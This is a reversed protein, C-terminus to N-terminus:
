RQFQVALVVSRSPIDASYTHLFSIPWGASNEPVDSRLADGRLSPMRNLWWSPASCRSWSNATGSAFSHPPRTSVRMANSPAEENSWVAIAVATVRSCSSPTVVTTTARSKTVM